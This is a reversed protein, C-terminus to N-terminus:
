ETKEPKEPIYLAGEPLRELKLYKKVYRGASLAAMKEAEDLTYWRKANISYTSTHLTRREHFRPPLNRKFTLIARDVSINYSSLIRDIFSLDKESCFFQITCVHNDYDCYASAYPTRSLRYSLDEVGKGSAVVIFLTDLVEPNPPRKLYVGLYYRNKIHRKFHYRVTKVGLRTAGRIRYMWIPTIV